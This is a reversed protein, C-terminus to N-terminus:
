IHSIIVDKEGGSWGEQESLVFRIILAFILRCGKGRLALILAKIIFLCFCDGVWVDHGLDNKELIM